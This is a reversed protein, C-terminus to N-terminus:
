ETTMMMIMTLHDASDEASTLGATSLPSVISPPTMISNRMVIWTQSKVEAISEGHFGDQPM